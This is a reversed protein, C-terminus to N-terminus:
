IDVVRNATSLTESFIVRVQHLLALGAWSQKRRYAKLWWVKELATANLLSPTHSYSMGPPPLAPRPLSTIAQSLSFMERLVSLHPHCLPLLDIIIPQVSTSTRNAIGTLFVLLLTYFNVPSLPSPVRSM